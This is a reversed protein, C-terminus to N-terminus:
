RNCQAVCIISGAGGLYSILVVNFLFIFAEQARLDAMEDKEGAALSVHRTGSTGGLEM